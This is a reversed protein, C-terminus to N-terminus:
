GHPRLGPGGGGLLPRVLALTDPVMARGATWSDLRDERVWEVAVVEGDTFTFPGESEVEFVEGVLRVDEDEYRGGGLRRLGGGASIGVEEALERRAAAGWGEGVGVVGGFALDWRGPWVDKLDARRHALVRGNARVVVFVARHRLNRARLEARTVVDLVRGDEDVVEVQEDAAVV